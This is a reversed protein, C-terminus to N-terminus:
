YSKLLNTFIKPKAGFHNLHIFSPNLPNILDTAGNMAIQFDSGLRKQFDKTQGLNQAPGQLTGPLAM